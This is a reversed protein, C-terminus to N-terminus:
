QWTRQVRILTDGEFDLRYIDPFSLRRWFEYGFTSDFGNLILALLNGHTSAVVHQGGHRMIISGVAALARTQARINSEGGHPASEPSRWAEAVIGDFADTPVVPLERERLDSVLEPQIGLRDSLPTVTQIARRVPSSYIAAIPLGSLIGAVVQSANHGSESLPRAEDCGWDAHAHRVLYIKTTTSL